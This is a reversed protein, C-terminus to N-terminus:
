ASINASECLWTPTTSRYLELAAPSICICFKLLHILVFPLDTIEGLFEHLNKPKEFVHMGIHTYITHTHSYTNHKHTHTHFVCTVKSDNCTIDLRLALELVVKIERIPIKALHLCLLGSNPLLHFSFHGKTPPLVASEDGQEGKCTRLQDVSGVVGGTM